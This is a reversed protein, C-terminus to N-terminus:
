EIDDYRELLVDIDDYSVLNGYGDFEFYDDNTSFRGTEVRFLLETPSLEGLVDDFENMTYVRGMNNKELRKNLDALKM